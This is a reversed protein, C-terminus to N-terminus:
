SPQFHFKYTGAKELSDFCRDEIGRQWESIQDYFDENDCDPDDDWEFDPQDEDYVDLVVGNKIVAYGAFADSEETFYNSFTLNPFNVSVKQVAGTPAMFTTCTNIYAHGDEVYFPDNAEDPHHWEPLHTGLVSWTNRLTNKNDNVALVFKTIDDNSGSLTLTNYIYSM